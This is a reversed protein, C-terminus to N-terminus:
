GHKKREVILEIDPKIEKRDGPKARICWKGADLADFRNAGRWSIEGVIEWYKWCDFIVSQGRGSKIKVITDSQTAENNKM